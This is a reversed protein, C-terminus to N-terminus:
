SDPILHLHVVLTEIDICDEIDKNRPVNCSWTSGLQRGLLAICASTPRPSQSSLSDPEQPSRGMMAPWVKMLSMRQTTERPQLTQARMELGLCMTMM